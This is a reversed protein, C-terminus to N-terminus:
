VTEPSLAAELFSLVTTRLRVAVRTDLNLGLARLAETDSVVATIAAYTTFLVLRSDSRKFIGADMGEDLYHIAEDILPQFVELVETSWPKGMRSVERLLGMLEPNRLALGFSARVMTQISPWGPASRGSASQLETTLVQASNAFVASVLGQKSGFHYLVTQKTVGMQNAIEELSTAAVGKKAFGVSAAAM